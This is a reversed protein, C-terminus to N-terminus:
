HRASSFADDDWAHRRFFDQLDMTPAMITTKGHSPPLHTLHSEQALAEEMWSASLWAVELKNTGDRDDRVIQVRAFIHAPAGTLGTDDSSLDLFLRGSLRVLGGELEYAKPKDKDDSTDTITVKYMRPEDAKKFTWMEDREVEWSGLFAPEFILSLDDYLPYLYVFDNCGTLFLAMVVAIALRINRM